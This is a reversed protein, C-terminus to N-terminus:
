LVIFHKLVGIVTYRKWGESNPELKMVLKIM